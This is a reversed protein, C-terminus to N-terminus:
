VWYSKVGGSANGDPYKDNVGYQPLPKGRLSPRKSVLPLLRAPYGASGASPVIYEGRKSHTRVFKIVRPLLFKMSLLLLVISAASIMVIAIISLQNEDGQASAAKFTPATEKIARGIGGQGTTSTINPTTTSANPCDNEYLGSEAPCSSRTSSTSPKQTTTTARATTLKRKSSKACAEELRHDNLKPKITSIEEQDSTGWCELPGLAFYSDKSKKSFEFGTVPLTRKDTLYGEDVRWQPDKNDCNCFKNTSECTLTMGCACKKSRPEAGGWYDQRKTDRSLWFAHPPGHPTNLLKSKFCHFRVHQRCKKSKRILETIQKMNIGYIVIHKYMNGELNFSSLSDGVRTEGKINHGVVTFTKGSEQSINCFATFPKGDGEPDLLCNQNTKLGMSRYYECTPKFISIECRKGEFGTNECNCYYSNWDQSCRGGRECPNPECRNLLRCTNKLNDKKKESYKLNKLTIKQSDIQLNLLCGIFGPLNGHGEFGGLFIKLRSKNAFDLILHQSNNLTKTIRKGDLEFSVQPGIISANVQHWEGDDLNSGLSISTRTGNPATVNYLLSGDYLQLHLKVKIASRSLILGKNIHTRFRFSTSFTNNDVSLKRVTVRYGVNPNAITVFRQDLKKCQFAVKGHTKYGDKQRQAERLLNKGQYTLNSLCGRFNKMDKSPMGGIYLDGNLNLDCFSEQVIKSVKGVSDVDLKIDRGKQILTVDHWQGESIEKRPYVITITGREQDGGLYVECSFRSIEDTLPWWITATVRDKVRKRGLPEGNVLLIM